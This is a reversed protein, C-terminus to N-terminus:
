MRKNTLLEGSKGRASNGMYVISNLNLASLVDQCVADKQLYYDQFFVPLFNFGVVKGRCGNHGCRCNLVPEPGSYLTSYDITLPEGPTIRTLLVLENVSNIACNPYCSHPIPFPFNSIFDMFSMKFPNFHRFHCMLLILLIYIYDDKQCNLLISKRM